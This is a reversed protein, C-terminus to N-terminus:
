EKGSIIFWLNYLATKLSWYKLDHIFWGLMTREGEFVGTKSDYVKIKM